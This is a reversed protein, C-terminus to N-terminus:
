GRDTVYISDASFKMGFFEIESQNFKCKPLGLTLGCDEFRQLVQALAIDHELQTKDYPVIIDDCLNDTNDIDVLTQSIEQHFIQAASDTGFNLRKFRCLGRHTYFTTMYRSEPKLELQMYGQKMDLKTLHTAANLKYRLEELRPIVHRIRKIATNATTMDINM